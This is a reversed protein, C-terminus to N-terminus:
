LHKVPDMRQSLIRIIAVGYDANQFYITHSEYFQSRYGPGIDNRTLGSTPARDALAQFAAWLGDTYKNAQNFGFNEYSYEWIGPM